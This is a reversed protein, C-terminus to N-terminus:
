LKGSNRMWSSNRKQKATMSNSTLFLFALSSRNHMITEVTDGLSNWRTVVFPHIRKPTIEQELQCRLLDRQARRSYHFHAAIKRCKRVLPIVQAHKALVEISLNLTHVFCSLQPVRLIRGSSLMNAGNDTIYRQIDSIDIGINDLSQALMDAINQGTHADTFEQFAIVFIVREFDETLYTVAAGIYSIAGKSTWGDAILIMSWHDEKFLTKLREFFGERKQGLLQKMREKSIPKFEASKPSSVVLQWFFPSKLISLHLHNEMILHAVAEEIEENELFIQNDTAAIEKAHVSRLHQGLKSPSSNLYPFYKKCLGCLAQEDGPPPKSFWNWVWSRKKDKLELHQYLIDFNYSRM